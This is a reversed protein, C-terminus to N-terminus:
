WAAGITGPVFNYAPWPGSPELELGASAFESQLVRMAQDFADQADDGVLYVGNLVMEAGRGSVEPRQPPSLRGDAAAACLREHIKQCADDIARSDLEHRDREQQRRAMYALGSGSGELTAEADPAPARTREPSVFVKVGWETKHELHGLAAELAKAERRLMERVGDETRYVTCLRMPIVTTRGRVADLVRDHTRATRELWDMDALHERLQEEGFEHLPVRSAVATLRGERVGEVPRAPDIGPTLAPLLAAEDGIVGYVYWALEGSAPNSRPDESVRSTPLPSAAIPASASPGLQGQVRDLMSLAIAESLMSRVRGRAEARAEALLAPVEDAAIGDIAARLRELHEDNTPM